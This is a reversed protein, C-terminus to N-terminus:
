ADVHIAVGYSRVLDHIAQSEYFTGSCEQPSRVWPAGALKVLNNYIIQGSLENALLSITQPSLPTRLSRPLPRERMPTRPQALVCTAPPLGVVISVLLPLGITRPRRM